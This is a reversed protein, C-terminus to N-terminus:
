NVCVNETSSRSHVFENNLRLLKQTKTRELSLEHMITEFTNSNSTFSDHPNPTLTKFNQRRILSSQPNAYRDTAM